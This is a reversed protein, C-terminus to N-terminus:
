NPPPQTGCSRGDALVCPAFQFDAAASWEGAPAFSSDVVRIRWTWGTLNVDPVFANCETITLTREPGPVFKHVAPNSAGAVQAIIEYSFGDPPAPTPAEWEFVEQFGYGNTPSLFCGLSDVNQQFTANLTPYVTAPPGYWSLAPTVVTAFNSIGTSSGDAFSAVVFYAVTEGAGAAADLYTTPPDTRNWLPPAGPRVIAIPTAPLSVPPFPTGVVKFRYVSYSVPQGFAPATWTLLVPQDGAPTGPISDACVLSGQQGVVTLCAGLESPPPPANGSVALATELDLEFLPEQYGGLDLDGLGFVGRGIDGRGIDGRGIDGRGIDGRGIDGRGIDGRGIDGRGIADGIDGRGIDGRGIDGRGIDGRGIDGRGVDLSLPGLRIDEQADVYFGGPSRRGGLQSFRLSTWDSSTPVVPNPPFDWYGSFNIDLEYGPSPDAVGDADWDIPLAVAPADVRVMAEEGQMLESGNCHRAAPQAVDRLYSTEWPAYWGIRYPGPVAAGESVMENLNGTLEWSYDLQIKGDADPLGRLQYLYNMVSLYLPKCNPERPVAPDLSQLGAHTLEFNHGLEHMLTSAQMFTTGVPLGEADDFAGLTVLVDGGALDAIGSNTRPVHFDPNTDQCALDPSGDENLCDERPIGLSHAFLVYHFIDKRNRDFGLVVDRLFQFGTKWGVTGPFYSYQGPIVPRGDEFPCEMTIPPTGDAEYAPNPCMATESISHGGRGFGAPLVYPEGQHFTGVDFHLQVGAQAFADGVKKLAEATPRHTHALRGEPESPNAPDPLGYKTGGAAEMFDIQVFLDKRTPDAGMAKLDPLPGGSRDSVDTLPPSTSEWVDVLADGDTDQVATKFVMGSFTLCDSSKGLPIVTVTASSAGPALPLNQLTPNDWKPGAAAAYPNTSVMTGNLLVKEGLSANGDGVVHTMKAAPDTRSAEYFGLITQTMTATPPKKYAGDYIVISSLPKAPDRYVVVLSAGLARPASSWRTEKGGEVMDVLARGADPVAIWHEVDLDHKGTKPNIRLFRLVDARYTMVKRGGPFTTDWCPAPASSWPVLPKAFTGSGPAGGQATFPGLDIQNFTAHDIGSGEVSEATQVYLFAALLDAQHPVGGAGGLPPIRGVAKGSSSDGARWLSVGRVAYDGTVFYNKFFSLPEEALAPAPLAAFLLATVAALARGRRPLPRRWGALRALTVRAAVVVRGLPGHM